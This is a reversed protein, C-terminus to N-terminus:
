VSSISTTYGQHNIALLGHTNYRSLNLKLATNIWAVVGVNKELRKETRTQNRQTKWVSIWWWSWEAELFWSSHHTYHRQLSLLEEVEISIRACTVNPNLKRRILPREDATDEPMGSAAPGNPTILFGCYSGAGYQLVCNKIFLGFRLWVM